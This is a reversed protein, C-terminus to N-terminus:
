YITIVIKSFYLNLLLLCTRLIATITVVRKPSPLLSPTNGDGENIKSCLELVVFFNEQFRKVKGLFYM